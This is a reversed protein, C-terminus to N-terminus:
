SLSLQQKRNQFSHSPSTNIRGMQQAVHELAIKRVTARTRRKRYAVAGVLLAAGAVSAGAIAGRRWTSSSATSASPPATTPATIPATPPATPPATTPATPPATPPATTPATTSVASIAFITISRPNTRQTVAIRNSILRLQHDRSRRRSSDTLSVNLSIRQQLEWLSGQRHYVALTDPGTEGFSRVALVDENMAVAAGFMQTENLTLTQIRACTDLRYVHVEGRGKGSEPDSVVLTSGYLAMADGFSGTSTISCHQTWESGNKMVEIISATKTQLTNLALFQASAAVNSGLSVFSSVVTEHILRCPLSLPCVALGVTSQTGNVRYVPAVITNDPALAVHTAFLSIEDIVPNQLTRLPKWHGEPDKTYVQIAGQLGNYGPDAVALLTASMASDQGLFLTSQDPIPVEVPIDSSLTVVKIRSAVDDGTNGVDFMVLSEENMAFNSAFTNESDTLSSVNIREVESWEATVRCLLLVWVIRMRIFLWHPSESKM